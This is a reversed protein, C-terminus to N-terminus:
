KADNLLVLNDTLEGRVVALNKGDKSWAFNVILGSAFHTLEYSKMTNLPMVWINSVGNRTDLFAIANGDPMWRVQMVTATIPLDFSKSPHGTGASLIEYVWKNRANDFSRVLLFRGDPSVDLSYVYEDCVKLPNGGAVPIKWLNRRGKDRYSDFYIWKNDPAIRPLYDDMGTTLCKQDSGDIDMIWVHPTTDRRSAYAILQGNNSVSPSSKGYSESTLQRRNKGDGDMIWIDSNGSFRSTYVMRGDPTWDLGDVGDRYANLSTIKRDRHSDGAPLIDITSNFDQQLALATAQNETTNLCSPSYDSLDTTMRHVHGNTIDLYWLQGPGATRYESAVMLLGKGSNVWALHGVADWRQTTAFQSSGDQISVLLISLYFKGTISGASIAITKGDPSWAPMEGSNSLFFDEGKRSVLKKENGGDAECVVLAEEGEDRYQRVFALQKGDPSVGVASGLNSSVKRPVGGLLPVVFLTGRNDGQVVATYYVYNGDPSFTFGTYDVQEPALVRVSSVASVQRMWVSQKDSEEVSYIIYKGDPSIAALLPQADTPVRVPNFSQFPYSSEPSSGQPFFYRWVVLCVLIALGLGGLVYTYRRHLISRAPEGHRETLVSLQSQAKFASTRTIKTSQKRARRLDILMDAVSQYRDAPDKELARNLIYIIESPVRPRYKEIPDPDENLISYIIAAEHEGKFPLRGALMEYLVIGLSFIDARTDVDSGQLQEPAMYALTGVTSSTRTLKLSGKLKALGFDMVKIQNKSNVMINDAKIDRHVVGQSHAEDLAEGIQIAYGYATDINDIPIRERLTVGDVFEMEIFQQKSGQPGETEEIGHITCINPHNLTAAAKAEQLFRVKEAGNATLHHPLFKLAVIRDLNTDQAKYVIGM